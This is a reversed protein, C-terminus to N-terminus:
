AHTLKPVAETLQTKVDCITAAQAFPMAILSLGAICGLLTNKQM